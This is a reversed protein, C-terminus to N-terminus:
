KPKAKLLCKGGLTKKPPLLGAAKQQVAPCAINNKLPLEVAMLFYRSQASTRAPRPRPHQASLSQFNKAPQNSTNKAVL